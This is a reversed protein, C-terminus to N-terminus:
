FLREIPAEYHGRNMFYNPVCYHSDQNRIGYFKVLIDIYKYIYIYRFPHDSSTKQVANFVTMGIRYLFAVALLSMSFLTVVSLLTCFNLSLLIFMTGIFVIATKKWCKWYILDIAIDPSFLVSKNRYFFQESELLITEVQLYSLVCTRKINLIHAFWPNKAIIYVWTYAAGNKFNITLYNCWPHSTDSPYPIQQKKNFYSISHIYQFIYINFFINLNFKKM